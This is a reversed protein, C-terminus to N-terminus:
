ASIQFCRRFLRGDFDFPTTAKTMDKISSANIKEKDLIFKSFNTSFYLVGGAKMGKLCDNIMEAHDRQIDLFDKMRKSNSFTPPDIVVLNFYGAPLTKIYQKVDAQIFQYKSQDTFGNLAMNKKAWDLYTGSLDVTMVEAAKGAAAYVSFSGTYGFLNLVKKGIAETKINQRTIRHDLFLGTDLYDSLNVIFKLGNEEAIFENKVEDFKRYQGLRGPKRQRLKLFINEGPIDLVETIVKLSKEMWDDHEEEMMGHRRKYEAVYLKDGYFEICLPFEPLDHDYVRYCSVGLKEAQRGIHRFVKVLRNRFMMLKEDTAM